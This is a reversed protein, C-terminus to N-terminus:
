RIPWAPKEPEPPLPPLAEIMELLAASPRFWERHARDGAFQGHLAAEEEEGGPIARLLTLPYPSAVSLALLRSKLNAALGIKIFKNPCESRVFYIVSGAAPDHIKPPPKWTNFMRRAEGADFTDLQQKRRRPGDWYSVM